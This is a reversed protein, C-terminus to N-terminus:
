IYVDQGARVGLKGIYDNDYNPSISSLESESEVSGIFQIGAPGKLGIPYEITRVTHDSLKEKRQV